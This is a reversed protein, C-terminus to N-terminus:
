VTSNAAVCTNVPCPSDEYRPPLALQPVRQLFVRLEEHLIADDMVELIAEKGLHNNVFVAPIEDFRDMLCSLRGTVGRVYQGDKVEFFVELRPAEAGKLEPHLRRAAENTLKMAEVFVVHFRAAIQLCGIACHGGQYDTAMWKIYSTELLARAERLAQLLDKM